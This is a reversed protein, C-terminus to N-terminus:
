KNKNREAMAKEANEIAKVLAENKKDKAYSSIEQLRKMRFTAQMIKKGFPNSKSENELATLDADKGNSELDSIASNTADLLIQLQDRQNKLNNINTQFQM